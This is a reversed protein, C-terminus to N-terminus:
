EEEQQKTLNLIADHLKDIRQLIIMYGESGPEMKDLEVHLNHLEKNILGEINLKFM